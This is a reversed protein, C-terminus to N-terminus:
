FGLRARRAAEADDATVIADAAAKGAQEAQKAVVNAITDVMSVIGLMVVEADAANVGRAVLEAKVASKIPEMKTERAAQRAAHKSYGAEKLKRYLNTM